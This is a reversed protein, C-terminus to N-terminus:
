DEVPRSDRLVVRWMVTLCELPHRRGFGVPREIPKDHRLREEQRFREGSGHMGHFYKWVKVLCRVGKIFVIDGNGRQDGWIPELYQSFQGKSVFTHGMCM